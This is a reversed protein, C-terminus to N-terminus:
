RLLGELSKVLKEGTGGGAVRRREVYEGMCWQKCRRASKRANAKVKRPQAEADGVGKPGEVFV